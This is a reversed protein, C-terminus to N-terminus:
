RDMLDGQVFTRMVYDRMLFRGVQLLLTCSYVHIYSGSVPQRIVRAEETPAFLCFRLSRAHTYTCVYTCVLYSAATAVLKTILSVAFGPLPGCFFGCVLDFLHSSGSVMLFVFGIAGIIAYGAQGQERLWDASQLLPKRLVTTSLAAVVILLCLFFLGKLKAALSSKGKTMPTAAVVAAAAATAANTPEGEKQQLPQQAAHAADDQPTAM